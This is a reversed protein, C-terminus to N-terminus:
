LRMRESSHERWVAQLLRASLQQKSVFAAAGCSRQLKADPEEASVLVVVVGPHEESLRRAVDIGSMGPMRRDVIVMRPCLASVAALAREGSAAEGVLGFGDTARVLDRVVHRFAEQDDVVLVTVTQSDGAPHPRPDIV